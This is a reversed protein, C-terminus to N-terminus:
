APAAGYGINSLAIFMDPNLLLNATTVIAMSSERSRLTQCALHLATLGTSCATDVTLSPGRLDFFHSIRNSAMASGNATLTSRPLQEPDRLLSEFYDRCFAGATVSTNSGAVESISLGANELAEFTSELQMRIQPDMANAVETSLNFFSADFISIDELFHGGEVHSTGTREWDPHFFGEQNFRDKPIKSWASRGEACLQWLKEPDTAGGPLKCSMGIIAIPMTTYPPPHTMKHQAKANQWTDGCLDDM